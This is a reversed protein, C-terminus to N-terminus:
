KEILRDLKKGLEVLNTNIQALLQVTLVPINGQIVEVKSPAATTPPPTVQQAPKLVEGKTQNIKAM